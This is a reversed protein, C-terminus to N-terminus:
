SGRDRTYERSLIMYVSWRVRGARRADVPVDGPHGPRRAHTDIATYIASAATAPLLAWLEAMGDALASVAVRREAVAREHRVQAGPPDAALVARALCARLQGVTQSVARALVRAEVALAVPADVTSTADAVARAKPLDLDGVALAAATGPLREALTQALVLRAGAASRSWRLEAALEDVAFESAGAQVQEGVWVPRCRAFQAILVLQRAQVAAIGRECAVIGALLDGVPPCGFGRDAGVGVLEGGDYM